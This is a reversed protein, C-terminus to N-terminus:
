AHAGNWSAGSGVDVLLPVDLKVASGMAERIRNSAEAVRAEPVEFVLEDHVTLIMKAGPVVEGAGLKVMAVKLIDAATGQIPTNKAIREAEMRLGRNASHLNPLFRRRGLLTRVAEGRRAAEITQEMFRAVGSYREFYAEIFRGGEARTVGTQKALASDGMGYIVGFNITKARARMERTVEDKPVGFVLSATRVHVDENTRFAELLQEDRSLHALVRLEIQSYDASVIRYGKPAVFAERIRRGVETRIPINQLNPDTSSLRGTAAVTQEFRTHIRGTKPNVARPLADIYTGKLKDIERFSVIVRPLEHQEALEELVTADTSRGGKPTRKLVPLKLDDFLIKELQDRSRVAFDRGVIQKAQAELQKLDEEMTRGLGELVPVDVLVGTWEMEALVRSLPLEVDAMLPGLGEKEVRPEIREALALTAEAMGAAYNTAREHDVEDFALQSGRQKSTAEDYTTLELTLERRALEKLSSPSEPDLLYTGLLTDFIPGAIPLEFRHFLVEITKLDHAVKKVKPDVLLPAIERAVSSWPLQPPVGLYRHAVPVYFGEGVTTALSVGIVDGRMPDPSSSAVSLALVGKERARALVAGLAADTTVAAHTRTTAAAPKLLDLMRTFELEMFLARLAEENAGGYELQKLDLELPVDTNLSVLKQSLRADAEHTTLAEKLKAKKIEGIHEYIGDISGYALLLDSATKPGVSPVGPINDSTDGTLALLDRLKSPPVGFKARVESPGYVKDRMSDWLVVRDDDDRVLQMLDKDASVIVVRLDAALARAVVSAILDDAELGTVQYTPINYARVIAECRAMQASLDAPPPPRNAKYRLDLEHRFTRGKSDMAVALMHPRKENVVKQLMNVTGLIAHTPEGKTSSLPAIAHYARFVYGSLDVLYLCDRSGPDPLRSPSAADPSM